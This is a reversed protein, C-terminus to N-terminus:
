LIPVYIEYFDVIGSDSTLSYVYFAYAEEALQYGNKAGYEYLEQLEM